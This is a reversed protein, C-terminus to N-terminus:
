SRSVRGGRWLDTTPTPTGIIAAARVTGVASNRLRFEQEPPVQVLDRRALRTSARQDGDAWDVSLVGDWVM